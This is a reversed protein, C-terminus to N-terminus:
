RQGVKIEGSIPPSGSPLCRWFQHPAKVTGGLEAALRWPWRPDNLMARAVAVMDAKGEAVIQEAQQAGTIMGVAVVPIRVERKIREAFHVQYGPGVPIKQLHSLGGSSVDLFACNMAELQRCLEISQAVDWGGEVWDSASLRVGVAIGSGAADRVARFVALPLRLRNELSGGYEDERRNSLPSAFYKAGTHSYNECLGSSDEAVNAASENSEFERKVLVDKRM